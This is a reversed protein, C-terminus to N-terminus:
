HGNFRQETTRFTFSHDEEILLLWRIAKEQDGWYRLPPYRDFPTMTPKIRTFIKDTTSFSTPQKLIINHPPVM